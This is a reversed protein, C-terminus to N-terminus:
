ALLLLLVFVVDGMLLLGFRVAVGGDTTVKQLTGAVLALFAQVAVATVAVLRFLLLVLLLVFRISGLRDSRGGGILLVFGAGEVELALALVVGVVAVVGM